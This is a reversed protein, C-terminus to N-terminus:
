ANRTAQMSGDPMKQITTLVPQKTPEKPMGEKILKQEEDFEIHPPYFESRQLYSFIADKSIMGGQMSGILANIMEPTPPEKFFEKNFEFRVSEPNDGAWEAFTKLAISIGTSVAISLSSLVSNEGARYIVATSTSEAQVRHSELMRSGITVMQSELRNLQNELASFGATGVEVIGVKAAPNPLILAKGAGVKLTENPQMEHGTVYLTPAGQWHCGNALDAYAMYHSLCLEVLDVMMPTDITPDLNDPGIIYLPIYNMPKGNMTPYYRELEVDTAQRNKEQVEFIRVRYIDNEDMDLVRYRTVIADEFDDIPINHEEKIVAM